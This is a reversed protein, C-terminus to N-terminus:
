EVCCWRWRLKKGKRDVCCWMDREAGSGEWKGRPVAGGLQGLVMEKKKRNLLTDVGHLEM